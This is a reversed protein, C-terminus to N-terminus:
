KKIERKQTPSIAELDVGAHVEQYSDFVVVDSMNPKIPCIFMGNNPKTFWISVYFPSAHQFQLVISILEIDYSSHAV